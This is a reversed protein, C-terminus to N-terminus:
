VNDEKDDKDDRNDPHRDWTAKHNTFKIKKEPVQGIGVIRDWERQTMDNQTNKATM